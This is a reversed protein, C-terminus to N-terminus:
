AVAESPAGAAAAAAAAAAAPASGGGLLALLRAEVEAKKTPGGRQGNARLYCQMEPVSLGKLSSGGGAAYAALVKATVAAIDLDSAKIKTRKAAAAAAAGEAGAAAGETDSGGATGWGADSGGADVADGAIVLCSADEVEHLGLLQAASSTLVAPVAAAAAAAPKGAGKAAAAVVAASGLKGAAAAAEAKAAAQLKSLDTATTWSSGISFQKPQLTAAGAEAAAPATSGGQSLQSFQMLSDGVGAAGGAAAAELQFGSSGLLQLSSGQLSQLLQQLASGFERGGPVSGPLLSLGLSTLVCCSPVQLSAEEAEPHAAVGVMFPFCSPLLLGYCGLWHDCLQQLVAADAPCPQLSKIFAVREDPLLKVQRGDLQRAAAALKSRDELLAADNDTRQLPAALWKAEAMLAQMPSFPRFKVTGASKVM